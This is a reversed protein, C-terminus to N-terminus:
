HKTEDHSVDTCCRESKSGLFESSQFVIFARLSFYPSIWPFETLDKNPETLKVLKNLQRPLLRVTRPTTSISEGEIANESPVRMGLWSASDVAFPLATM